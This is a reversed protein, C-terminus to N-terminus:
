FLCQYRLMRRLMRTNPRPRQNAMGWTVRTWGGTISNVSQQVYCGYTARAVLALTIRPWPFQALRDAVRRKCSGNSPSEVAESQLEVASRGYSSKRWSRIAPAISICSNNYRRGWLASANLSAKTQCRDSTQRDRVDPRLWSCLPKPLSFNACLYGVDCM